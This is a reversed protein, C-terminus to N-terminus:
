RAPHTRDVFRALTPPLMAKLKAAQDASLKGASAAGDIRAAAAATLAQVLADRSVNHAQAVQALTKGPLEAKLQAGSIGITKAADVDLGAAIAPLKAAVAKAEPFVRDVGKAVADHLKAKLTDAQQQTIKNATLAADIRATEAAVLKQVLADRAVGHAAAVQSLSKGPLAKRLDAISIGIAQAADGALDRKLQFGKAADRFAAAIKDAQDQTIVGQQVLKRLVGSEVDKAAAVEAVSGDSSRSPLAGIGAALAAGGLLAVAAVGALAAIALASRRLHPLM